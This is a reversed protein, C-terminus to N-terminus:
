LHLCPPVSRGSAIWCGRDARFSSSGEHGTQTIIVILHSRCRHFSAVYLDPGPLNSTPSSPLTCPPPPPSLVSCVSSSEQSPHPTPSPSTLSLARPRTQKEENTCPPVQFLMRANISHFSFLRAIRGRKITPGSNAHQM